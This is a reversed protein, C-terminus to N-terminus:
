KTRSQAAVKAVQDMVRLLNGSWIKEIQAESYGRRVLELTVNFTESADDWGDVGGGGDFDSSIGVHDIGIKKVIYDIHDVFDKVTARPLPPFQRQDAAVRKDLEARREESLQALAGGPRARHPLPVQPRRVEPREPDPAAAGTAAPAGGRGRGGRGGRGGLPTGAPLGFEKRLGDLAAAREPTDTSKVYTAFAVTQVVGGNKKLALLQEDDLNRSHNCLARAASHSAIIPARSIQLAQMMSDKSPHSVDIMIGVRNM